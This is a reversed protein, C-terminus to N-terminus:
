RIKLSSGTTLFKSTMRGHSNTQLRAVVAAVQKMHEKAEPKESVADSSNFWFKFNGPANMRRRGMMEVVRLDPNLHEGNGCFVYDKAIVADCFDSDINNESGHHPVKLVDVTITAGNLRGTARLGDVIQDGRADGTLLISQGNQEALLTLSALNPPTVSAPNGFSEAQLTFARLVGAVDGAQLRSEDARAANRIAQLANTNARLWDNWEGRLKTLHAATPGLITFTIGGLQVPVQGTRLMMLKRQAPANLPINLQNAGVRRSVQIAQRVSNALDAQALGAERLKGVDAGSLVPAAAALANEVAGANDGLQEHFANHWINKIEPPRPAEPAKHTPNDHAIQHEHVRWAVEDDLMELIGGIHDEDIHSIYVLDLKRKAVRLKGLAPAIHANYADPMGGDVLVRTTGAANTLLLSDGKGSQFATLHM